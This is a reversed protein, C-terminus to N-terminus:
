RPENSLGKLKQELRKSADAIDKCYLAFIELKNMLLLNDIREKEFSRKMELHAERAKALEEELNRVQTSISTREPISNSSNPNHSM